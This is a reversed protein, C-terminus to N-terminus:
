AACFTSNILDYACLGSVAQPRASQWEILWKGSLALCHFASPPHVTCPRPHQAAVQAADPKVGERTGVHDALGIRLRIMIPLGESVGCFMIYTLPSCLRVCCSWKLVRSVTLLLGPM